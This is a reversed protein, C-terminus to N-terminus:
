GYRCYRRLEANETLTRHLKCVSECPPVLQERYEFGVNQFLNQQALRRIRHCVRCLSRVCDRNYAVMRKPMHHTHAGHDSSACEVILALLEEPLRLLFSNKTQADLRPRDLDVITLNGDTTSGLQTQCM